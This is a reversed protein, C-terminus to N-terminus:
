YQSPFHGLSPCFATFLESISVHAAAARETAKVLPLGAPLRYCATAKQLDLFVGSSYGGRNIKGRMRPFCLLNSLIFTCCDNNPPCHGPSTPAAQHSRQEAPGARRLLGCTPARVARAGGGGLSEGSRSHSPIYIGKGM